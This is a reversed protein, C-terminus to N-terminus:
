TFTHLATADACEDPDLENIQLTGTDAYVADETSDSGVESEGGEEDKDRYRPYQQSREALMGSQHHVPLSLLSFPFFSCTPPLRMGGGDNGRWMGLV